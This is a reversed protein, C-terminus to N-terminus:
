IPAAEMVSLPTSTSDLSVLEFSAAAFLRAFEEKTREHGETMVLMMLDLFPIDPSNNAPGVVHEVVLLRGDPKMARRCSRMIRICADDDWDHLIWKLLYGDRGEPVSVFFDGGVATFRSAYKSAAFRSKARAAVHPQDLLTGHVHPHASLIKQLFMGDGGGIDVIRRFRGFDYAGIVAEAYRATGSAMARDFVVNSEPHSARYEWVSCGHVHDFATSGTRVAHLLNGWAQWVHTQGILEAWPAQTGVIDNRLLAGAATLEFRGHESERFVGISALARLLRHLAGTHADSLAALEAATKAGLALHDALRLTVAVHIAQSIQFGNILRILAARDADAVIPHGDAQIVQTARM